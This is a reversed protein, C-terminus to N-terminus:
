IGQSATVCGPATMALVQCRDVLLDGFVELIIVLYTGQWTMRPRYTALHENAAREVSYLTDDSLEIGIVCRVLLNGLSM